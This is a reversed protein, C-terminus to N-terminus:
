FLYSVEMFLRASKLGSSLYSWFVASATVNRGLRYDASSEMWPHSVKSGGVDYIYSGGSVSLRLDGLRPFGLGVSPRYGQTFMMRFVSLRANLSLGKGLFDAIRLAGSGSITDDFGQRARIGFSGDVRMKSNFKWSVSTHFGRRLADDFLSDPVARNYLTRLNKRNDFSVGITLDELVGIRATLFLGTVELAPRGDSRKWGRNLDIEVSNRTAFRRGAAYSGELFFFERSVTGDGYTGSFAASASIMRGASTKRDYRTFIGFAKERTDIGADFYDPRVGGAVGVTLRETLAYRALAGDLYGIGRAGEPSFRGFRLALPNGREEYVLALEYVRSAWRDEELSVNSESERGLYRVRQRFELALPTGGLRRMRLVASLSPRTFDLGSQTLDRSLYSGLSLRGSVQNAPVSRSTIVVKEPEPEPTEPESVQEASATVEDGVRIDLIPVLPSCSSSHRAAASVVVPGIVARGRVVLLTDGSTIGSSTGVDVYVSSGSIYTVTGRVRNEVAQLPLAMSFLFAILILAELPTNEEM